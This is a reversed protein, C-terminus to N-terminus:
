TPHTRLKEALERIRKSQGPSCTVCHRRGAVDWRFLIGGCQECAPDPEPLEDWDALAFELANDADNTDAWLIAEREAEEYPICGPPRHPSALSLLTQKHERIAQKQRPTLSDVPGLVALSGGPETALEFGGMTLSNLLTQIDM